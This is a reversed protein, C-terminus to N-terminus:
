RGKSAIGVTRMAECWREASAESEAKAVLTSFTIQHPAVDAKLMAKYWRPLRKRM